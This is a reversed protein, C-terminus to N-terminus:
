EGDPFYPAGIDRRIAATVIQRRGSYLRADSRVLRRCLGPELTCERKADLTCERFFDLTCGCTAETGSFDPQRARGPDTGAGAGAGARRGRGQETRGQGGGRGGALRWLGQTLGAKMTPCTTDTAATGAAPPKAIAIRTALNEHEVAKHIDCPGVSERSLDTLVGM